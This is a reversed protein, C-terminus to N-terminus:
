NDYLYVVKGFREQQNFTRDFFARIETGKYVSDIVVHTKISQYDDIARVLDENCGLCNGVISINNTLITNMVSQYNNQEDSFPQGIDELYQDYLGCTVYSGGTKILPVVKELYLDYFPDIVYDFGKLMHIAEHLRQSGISNHKRDVIFVDSAGLATLQDAFCASTTLAYVNAGKSKLTNLAFLSTNSTAATLLVNNGEQIKLRRVISGITQGGITFGAAVEDSMNEPIRALKGYHFVEYEKSANNTPLGPTAGEFGSDPYAGNGIVRDGIALGKVSTGAAVVEGVFESGIPFYYHKDQRSNCYKLSKFILSKDRYNLSFGKKKVLVKQSNAPDQGDFIINETELLGITVEVGDMILSTVLQKDSVAEKLNPSCIAVQKM